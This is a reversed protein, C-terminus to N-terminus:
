RKRKEIKDSIRIKKKLIVLFDIGHFCVARRMCERTSLEVILRRKCLLTRVKPLKTIQM